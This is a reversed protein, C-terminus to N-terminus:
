DRGRRQYIMDMLEQIKQLDVPPQAAQGKPMTKWEQTMMAMGNPDIPQQPQGQQLQQLAMLMDPTSRAQDPPTQATQAERWKMVNPDSSGGIM